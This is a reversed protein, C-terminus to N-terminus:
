KSYVTWNTGDCYVGAHSTSGGTATAGWTVTTSDSIARRQGELATACAPLVAFTVPLSAGLDTWGTGNYNRKLGYTLNFYEEGTVSNTLEVDAYARINMGPQWTYRLATPTLTVTQTSGTIAQSGVNCQSSNPSQGLVGAGTANSLPCVKFVYTAANGIVITAGGSSNLTGTYAAASGRVDTVPTGSLQSALTVTYTGGAWAVSDTDTVALTVTTQAFAAMTMSIAVLAISFVRKM